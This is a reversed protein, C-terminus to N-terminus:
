ALRRRPNRKERDRGALAADVEAKSFVWKAGGVPLPAPFTGERVRRRLTKSCVGAIAVVEQTTYTQKSM